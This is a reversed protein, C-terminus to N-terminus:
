VLLPKLPWPHSMSILGGCVDCGIVYKCGDCPTAEACGAASSGPVLVKAGLPSFDHTRKAFAAKLFPNFPRLIWDDYFGEHVPAGVAVDTFGVSRACMDFINLFIDYFGTLDIGLVDHFIEISSKFWHLYMISRSISRTVRVNKAEFTTKESDAEIRESFGKYAKFVFSAFSISLVMPTFFSLVQSVYTKKANIVEIASVVAMYKQYM